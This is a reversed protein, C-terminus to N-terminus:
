RRKGKAKKASTKAGKKAAGKKAARKKASRKKPPEMDPFKDTISLVYGDPDVVNFAHGGWPQAELPVDVEARIKQANAWAKQANPVGITFLVGKGLEGTVWAKTDEAQDPPVAHKDWIIIGADGLDLTGFAMEPGMSTKDLRAKLGLGKYFEVSKAVDSVNIVPWLGKAM